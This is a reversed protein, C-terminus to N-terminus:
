FSQVVSIVVAALVMFTVIGAIFKTQQGHRPESASSSVADLDLIAKAQRAQSERVVLNVGQNMALEPHLGGADDTVIHADIEESKLVGRAVDAASRTPYTAIVVTTSDAM